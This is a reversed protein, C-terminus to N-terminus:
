EDVPVTMELEPIFMKKRTEHSILYPKIKLRKPMREFPDMDMHMAVMTTGPIGGGYGSGSSDLQNGDQDELVYRLRERRKTLDQKAYDENITLKTMLPTLEIKGLSIKFQKWEKPPDNSTVIKTATENKKVPIDFMFPDKEMGALTIKLNLTFEDPFRYPTHDKSSFEQHSITVISASPTGTRGWNKMAGQRVTMDVVEGNVMGNVSFDRNTFLHDDTDQELVFYINSGSYVLKPIRLTVGHHTVSANLEDMMGKEDATQLGIQHTLQFLDQIFPIGKLSKAMAPSVFASGLLALCVAFAAAASGCVYLWKNRRKVTLSPLEEFAAAMREGVIHPLEDPIPVRSDKLKMEIDNLDM